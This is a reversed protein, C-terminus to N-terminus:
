LQGLIITRKSQSDRRFTFPDVSASIVPEDVVISYLVTDDLKLTELVRRESTLSRHIFPYARRLSECPLRRTSRGLGTKHQMGTACLKIDKFTEVMFQHTDHPALLWISGLPRLHLPFVVNLRHSYEVNSNLTWVHTQNEFYLDIDIYPWRFPWGPRYLRSRLSTFRFQTDATVQVDYGGPDTSTSSLEPLSYPLSYANRLASLITYQLKLLVVSASFNILQRVFKNLLLITISNNAYEVYM